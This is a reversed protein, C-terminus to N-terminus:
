NAMGSGLYVSNSVRSEDVRLFAMFLHVEDGAYSSPISLTQQGVSREAGDLIFTSERKTPNYV